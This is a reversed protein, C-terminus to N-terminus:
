AGYVVTIWLRPGRAAASQSVGIGVREFPEALHASQSVADVSDSRYSDAAAERLSDNGAELAAQVEATTDALEGQQANKHSRRQAMASLRLDERLPPWGQERRAQNLRQLARETLQADTGSDAPQALLLVALLPNGMVTGLGMCSVQADLLNARHAPSNMWQAFAADASPAAALNELLRRAHGGQAALRQVADGTSPSVHAFYHLHQMEEAHGQAARDLAAQPQPRSLGRAARAGWVLQLLVEQPNAGEPAAAAGTDDNPLPRIESAQWPSQGVGVPLLSAVEPGFGRDVLAQVQLVGRREGASVRQEFVGQAVPVQVSRVAGEPYQVALQVQRVHGASKSLRGVLVFADGAAVQAPVPAWHVLRRSLLVLAWNGRVVLGVRNMDVRQRPAAPVGGPAELAQLVAAEVSRGTAQVQTASLEGDTWGQHWAASRLAALDVPRDPELAAGAVQALRADWRLTGQHLGIWHRVAMFVRSEQPSMERAPALREYSGPAPAAHALSLCLWFLPTALLSM